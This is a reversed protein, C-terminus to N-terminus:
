QADTVGYSKEKGWFVLINSSSAIGRLGLAPNGERKMAFWEQELKSEQVRFILVTFFIKGANRAM